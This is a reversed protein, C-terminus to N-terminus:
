IKCISDLYTLIETKSVPFFNWVDVGINIIPITINAKEPYSLIIHKWKEHVHGCLVADCYDPVAHVSDPPIHTLFFQKNGFEIVGSMLANKVGSNRDHNGKIHVIKGNLQSEFEKARSIGHKNNLTKFAFDGIHYVTDEPKIRSNWNKIITKDMEEITKFPRNCYKIINVHSFHCDASFWYEM